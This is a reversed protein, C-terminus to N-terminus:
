DIQSDVRIYRSSSIWARIRAADGPNLFQFNYKRNNRTKISLSNGQMAFGRMGSYSEYFSHDTESTRYEMGEETFRLNGRCSSFTHKHEVPFLMKLVSYAQARDQLDNIMSQLRDPSYREAGGLEKAKRLHEEAQKFNNRHYDYLMGLNLHALINNPNLSLCKEFNLIATDLQKQDQYSAGIYFYAEDSNPEFKLYEQWESISKQYSGARFASLASQRLAQIKQRSQQEEAARQIRQQEQQNLEALRADIVSLRGRSYNDEPFYQLLARFDNRAGLWDGAAIKADGRGQMQEKLISVAQRAYRNNKDLRQISRIADLANDKDPPLLSGAKIAAEARQVWDQIQKERDKISADIKAAVDALRGEASPDDPYILLLNKYQKESELWDERAYAFEALQRVTEALKAKVELAYSNAPDIALVKQAFFLVNYDDPPPLLINENQARELKKRWAEVEALQENTLQPVVSELKWHVSETAYPIVTVQQVYERYGEKTGRLQHSGSRMDTLTIPSVGRFKGDVSIMAGPPTTKIVLSGYKPKWYQYFFAGMFALVATVVLLVIGLILTKVKIQAPKRAPKRANEEAEGGLPTGDTPCYQFSSPYSNGCQPCERM